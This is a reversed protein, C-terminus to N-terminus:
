KGSHEGGQQHNPTPLISSPVESVESFNGGTRPQVLLSEMEEVLEESDPPKNKLGSDCSMLPLLIRNILKHLGYGSGFVAFGICVMLLPHGLIKREDLLGLIVGIGGVILLSGFFGAGGLAAALLLRRLTELSSNIGSEKSSLFIWNILLHLLYSAILFFFGQVPFALHYPYLLISVLGWLGLSGLWGYNVVLLIWRLIKLGREVWSVRGLWGEGDLVGRRVWSAMPQVAGM